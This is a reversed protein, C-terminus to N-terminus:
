CVFSAPACVHSMGCFNFLHFPLDPLQIWVPAFLSDIQGSWEPMWREFRNIKGEVIAHGKMLVKACDEKVSFRILIDVADIAGIHAAGSIPFLNQFVMRVVDIAPMRQTFRGILTLNEDDRALKIWEVDKFKVM